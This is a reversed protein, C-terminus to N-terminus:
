APSHAGVRPRFVRSDHLREPPTALRQGERLGAVVSAGSEDVVSATTLLGGVAAIWIRDGIRRVILGATYPHFGHSTGGDTTVQRLRVIRGNCLTAAGAYPDDFGRCFAAVQEATWSWDIFANAPTFLRPFYLRDRNISAFPVPSFPRGAAIDDIATELFVCAAQHNARFYDIPVRVSDPLEFRHSRLLDGRDVEATIEQLFCGGARSGNLIQWTYHAGGLYEPLPIGNFNIMGAGFASRVAPSFIWAPGFCLALAGPGAWPQAALVPWDNIDARVVVDVGLARCAAATPQQQIPLLEEAHRPALVITVRLGRAQAHRASHLLLDGGGILVLSSVRGLSRTATAASAAAHRDASLGMLVEDEPGEDTQWHGALRGELVFNAKLFAKMSGVNGSYCGAAVKALGLVTFAHRSIAEIAETAYGRGWQDRDGLLLGIDARRHHPNIPGLKINGIHRGDHLFIGLFITDESDNLARILERTSAASHTSFRLELYRNVAPDALWGLYRESVDDDTLTRLRLRATEIPQDLRM